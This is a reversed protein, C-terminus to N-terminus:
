PHIHKKVNVKRTEKEEETNTSKIQINHQNQPGNFLLLFWISKVVVVDRRKLKKFFRSHTKEVTTCFSFNKPHSLLINHSRGVVCFFPYCFNRTDSHSYELQVVRRQNNNNSCKNYSSQKQIMWQPYM